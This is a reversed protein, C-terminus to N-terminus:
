TTGLRGGFRSDKCSDQVACLTLTKECREEHFTHEWSGSPGTNPAAGSCGPLLPWHAGLLGAEWAWRGPGWILDPRVCM